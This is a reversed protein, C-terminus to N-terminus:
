TIDFIINLEVFGFEPSISMQDSVSVAICYITDLFLNFLVDSSSPDLSQICFFLNVALNANFCVLNNFVNSCCFVSTFQIIVM